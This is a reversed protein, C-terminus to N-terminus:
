CPTTSTPSRACARASRRAGGATQRQVREERPIASRTRAPCCRITTCSPIKSCRTSRTWVSAPSARARVVLADRRVDRREGGPQALELRAAASLLLPLLVSQDQRRVAVGIWRLTSMWNNPPQNPGKGDRWIYWDRYKSTRSSRSDIFWKHQDSTHNMVFDLIIRIDQEQADRQMQDFDSLTGYM